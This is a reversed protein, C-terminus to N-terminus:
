YITKSLLGSLFRTKAQRIEEAEAEVVSAALM